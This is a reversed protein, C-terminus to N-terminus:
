DDRKGGQMRPVWYALIGSMESAEIEKAVERKEQARGKYDGSGCDFCNCLGKKMNRRMM